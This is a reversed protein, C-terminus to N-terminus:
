EFNVGKTTLLVISQGIQNYLLYTGSTGSETLKPLFGSFFGKQIAVLLDESEKNLHSSNQSLKILNTPNLTHKTSVYLTTKHHLSYSSLTQNNKTLEQNNLFLCQKSYSIDWIKEIKQKLEQFIFTKKFFFM